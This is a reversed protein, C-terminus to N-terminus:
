VSTIEINIRIFLKMSSKPMNDSVFVGRRVSACRSLRAVNDIQEVHEGYSNWIVETM